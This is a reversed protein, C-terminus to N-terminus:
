GRMSNESWGVEAGGICVMCKLLELRSNSCLLGCHGGCCYCFARLEALLIVRRQSQRMVGHLGELVPDLRVVVQGALIIQIQPINVQASM